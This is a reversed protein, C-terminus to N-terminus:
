AGTFEYFFVGARLYFLRYKDPNKGNFVTAFFFVSERLWLVTNHNKLILRKM